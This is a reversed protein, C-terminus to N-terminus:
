KNLKQITRIKEKLLNSKIDPNTLATGICYKSFGMPQVHLKLLIEKIKSEKTCDQKVEVILIHPLSHSHGNRLNEFELNYDLTVRETKAKNVITIRRFQTKLQPTLKKNDYMLRGQLFDLANPNNDWLYLEDTKIAIRKKKTRNRNTKNKIELFADNSDCYLRTRLKQRVLRKNHHILYYDCDETDFYITKYESFTNPSVQIYYDNDAEKLIKELLSINCVYKTDVRNMLKISQMQELTIKEM